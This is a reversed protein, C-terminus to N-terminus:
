HYDVLDVEVAEGGDFRFVVRLNSTIRVSWLGARDGKLPHLRFGPADMAGPHTASELLVLTRKLRSVLEAPVLASSDQEHLTRLGKHRIKM